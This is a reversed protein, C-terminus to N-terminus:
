RGDPKPIIRREENDAVVESPAYDLVRWSMVGAAVRRLRYRFPRPMSGKFFEELRFFEGQFRVTRPPEWDEKRRCAHIELFEGDNEKRVFVQDANQPLGRVTLKEKLAELYSSVNGRAFGGEIRATPVSRGMLKLYMRDALYLPMTGLCNEGFAAVLLRVSGEVGSYAILWTLPHTAVVFLGMFGIEQDTVGVPMKGALTADLGRSV